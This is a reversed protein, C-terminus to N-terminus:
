DPIILQNFFDYKLIIKEYTGKDNIKQSAYCKQHRVGNLEDLVVDDENSFHIQCSPCRLQYIKYSSSM